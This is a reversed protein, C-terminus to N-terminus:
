GIGEKCTNRHTQEGALDAQLIFAPTKGRKCGNLEVDHSLYYETFMQRPVISQAIIEGQHFRKRNGVTAAGLINGVRKEQRDTKERGM